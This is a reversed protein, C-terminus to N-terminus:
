KYVLTPERNGEYRSYGIFDDDAWPKIFEFFLEIEQQYNKIDGKGIFSYQEAIDDFTLRCAWTSPLYYSVNNFLYRWRMPKDNFEVSDSDGDSMAKLLDIVGSPTHKSLDVNVYIETYMGM